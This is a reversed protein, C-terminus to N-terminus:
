GWSCGWVVGAMNRVVGMDCVTSVIVQSTSSVISVVLLIITIFLSIVFSIVKM